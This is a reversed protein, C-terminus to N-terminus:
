TAPAEDAVPRKLPVLAYKYGFYVGVAYFILDMPSFTDTIVQAFRPLLTIALNPITDHLRPASVAIAALYNGLVCGALALAGSLIAFKRDHSQGFYRVAFAVAFGVGISMYGIQFSTAATIAAWAIAALIAAVAGALLAFLFRM